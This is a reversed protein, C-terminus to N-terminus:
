NTIQGWGTIVWAAYNANYATDIYLTKGPVTYQPSTTMLKFLPSVTLTRIVNNDTIRYRLSQDDVPTGTPPDLTANKALALVTFTDTTGCDAQIIDSSTISTIRPNSTADAGKINAVVSYTGSAKFYVNGTATDLYYDGNIGLSNSPAGAGNRWISASSSSVLNDVYEKDVLSRNVFNASYDADYLAGKFGTLYTGKSFITIGYTTDGEISIGRLNPSGYNGVAIISSDSIESFILYQGSNTKFGVDVSSSNPNLDIVQQADIKFANGQTVITYGANFTLPLFVDSLSNINIQVTVGSQVLAIIEAGTLGTAAPLNSIKLDAM